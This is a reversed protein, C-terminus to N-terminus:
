PYIAGACFAIISPNMPKLGQKLPNMSLHGDLLHGVGDLALHKLGQKLPNMSLHNLRRCMVSPM